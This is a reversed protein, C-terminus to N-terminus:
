WGSKNNADIFFPYELIKASGYYLPIKNGQV